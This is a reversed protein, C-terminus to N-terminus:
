CITHSGDLFSDAAKWLYRPRESLGEVDVLGSSWLYGQEASYDHIRQALPRHKRDYAASAQLFITSIDDHSADLALSEILPNLERLFTAVGIFGTSM